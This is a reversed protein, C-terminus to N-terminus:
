EPLITAADGGVLKALYERILIILRDRAEEATINGLLWEAEVKLVEVLFERLVPNRLIRWLLALNLRM